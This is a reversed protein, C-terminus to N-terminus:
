RRKEILAKAANALASPIGKSRSLQKLDTPHLHVLLRLTVELPCKPNKVLNLKVGYLRSWQRNHAIFRIIDEDIQRSGAYILVEAESIAPSRIAAMAVTKNTDRILVARAFANGVTALRIKAAPKLDSIKVRKEEVQKAVEPEAVEGNAEKVAKEALAARQAEAEAPDLALIELPSDADVAVAVAQKFAADEAAAQEPTPADSVAIAIVAEAFAAIGKVEVGNRVALEIARQATSMRTKPNLYLAAIIPPHRLLREENKAILELSREECQKALQEFTEDDTRHNLLVVELLDDRKFMRRAFFDLVRPDLAGALASVLVADPVEGASKLAATKLAPEDSQGLQYLATVLDAPALPALSRAAMMRVAPPAQPGTVREVAAAPQELPTWVMAM